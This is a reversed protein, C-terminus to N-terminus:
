KQQLESKSKQFEKWTMARHEETFWEIVSATGVEKNWGLEGREKQTRKSEPHDKEDVKLHWHNSSEWLLLEKRLELHIELQGSGIWM